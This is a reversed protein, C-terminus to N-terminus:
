EGRVDKLAEDLGIEGKLLRGIVNEDNEVDNSVVPTEVKVFNNPLSKKIAKEEEGNEEEENNEEDEDESNSPTNAIANIKELLATLKDNMEAISQVLIDMKGTTQTESDDQKNKDEEEDEVKEEDEKKDKKDEKEDVMGDDEKCVKIDDDYKFNETDVVIREVLGKLFAKDELKAQLKGCVKKAVDEDYGEENTMYNVCDEFNKWAGFPKKMEEDKEVEGEVKVDEDMGGYKAHYIKACIKKASDYSYGQCNMQYRVCANFRNKDSGPNQPDTMEKFHNGEMYRDKCGDKEMEDVGKAFTMSEILAEPNAPKEVVSIEHISIEKLEEGDRSKAVGGISFGKLEGKRIEDWAKDMLEDDNYIKALIKVGKRGSKDEDVWFSLVKGIIHNTHRYNLAGSREMFKIMARKMVDIPIYDGQLDKVEVNAMGEILREDSDKVLLSMKIIEGEM